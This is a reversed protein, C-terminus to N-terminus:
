RVPSAGSCYVQNSSKNKVGPIKVVQPVLNFFIIIFYDTVKYAAGLLLFFDSPASLNLKFRTLKLKRGLCSLYSIRPLPDTKMM